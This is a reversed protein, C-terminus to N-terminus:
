WVLLALGRMVSIRGWSPASCRTDRAACGIAIFAVKARVAVQGSQLVSLYTCARRTILRPSGILVECPSTGTYSAAAPLRQAEQHHYSAIRSCPPPAVRLWRLQRPVLKSRRSHPLENFVGTPREQGPLSWHRFDPRANAPLPDRHSGLHDGTVTPYRSPQDCDLSRRM